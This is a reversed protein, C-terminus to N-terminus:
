LGGWNPHRDLRDCLDRYTQLSRRLKTYVDGGMMYGQLGIPATYKVRRLEALVLFHDLQGEDLCEITAPPKTGAPNRRSGCINAGSLWPSAQALRVPLDKGDTAFWHFGTFMAGLRPHARSRCVDVAHEIREIYFNLHPYLHIRKDGEDAIKLLTDLAQNLRAHCDADGFPPAHPGARVALELPTSPEISRLTQEVAPLDAELRHLDLTIYVGCLDLGHRAKVGVVHRLDGPADSKWLTLHTGDFGLEALMEARVDFHYTKFDHAFNTDMAFFKNTM